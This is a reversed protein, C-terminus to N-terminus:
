APSSSAVHESGGQGRIRESSVVSSFRGWWEMQYKPRGWEDQLFCPSDPTWPFVELFIGQNRLVLMLSDLDKSELGGGWLYQEIGEPLSFFSWKSFEMQDWLIKSSVLERSGRWITFKGNRQERIYVLGEKFRAAPPTRRDQFMVQCCVGRERHRM